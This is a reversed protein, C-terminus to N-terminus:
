LGIISLQLASSTCRNSNVLSGARAADRAPGASHLPLAQRPPNLRIRHCRIWSAGWASRHICRRVARARSNGSHRTSDQCHPYISIYQHTYDHPYEHTPGPLAKGGHMQEIAAADYGVVPIPHLKTAAASALWVPQSVAAQRVLGCIAQVEHLIISDSVNPSTPDPYVLASHPTPHHTPANDARSASPRTYSSSM